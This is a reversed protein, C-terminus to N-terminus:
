GSFLEKKVTEDLKVAVFLWHNATPVSLKWFPMVKSGNPTPIGDKSHWCTSYEYIDDVQAPPWAVVRKQSYNAWLLFHQEWVFRQDRYTEIWNSWGQENVMAMYGEEYVGQTTNQVSQAVKSTWKDRFTRIEKTCNLLVEWFSLLPIM